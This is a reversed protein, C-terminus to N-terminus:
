GSIWYPVPDRWREFPRDLTYKGDEGLVLV